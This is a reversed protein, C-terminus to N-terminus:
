VVIRGVTKVFEEIIDEDGDLLKQAVCTRMHSEVLLKAVANMAAKVSSIQTLIDDCYDGREIMTKIGKVQGEIRNLRTTLDKNVKDPRRQAPSVGSVAAVPESAGAETEVYGEIGGNIKSM